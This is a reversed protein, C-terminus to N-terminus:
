IANHMGLLESQLLWKPTTALLTFPSMKKLSNSRCRVEFYIGGM